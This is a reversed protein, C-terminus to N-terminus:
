LFYMKKSKIQSVRKKQNIKHILHRIYQQKPTIFPPQRPQINNQLIPNSHINKYNDQPYFYVNKKLPQDQSLKGDIVKLNMNKLIGEYSIPQNKKEEIILEM